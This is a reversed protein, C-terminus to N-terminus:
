IYSCSHVQFYTVLRMLSCFFAGAVERIAYFQVFSNNVQTIRVLFIHFVLMVSPFFLSFSIMYYYSVHLFPFHSITKLNM